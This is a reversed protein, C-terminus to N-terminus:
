RTVGQGQDGHGGAKDPGADRAVLVLPQEPTAAAENVVDIRSTDQVRGPEPARMGAGPDNADVRCPGPRQGAHVQHQGGAVDPLQVLGTREQDGVRVKGMRAGLPRERGVADAVDALEDGEHDGVTAVDGLIGRLQDVDHVLGQGGDAPELARQIGGGRADMVIDGVIQGGPDHLAHALGLAGEV